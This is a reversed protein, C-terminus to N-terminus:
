YYAKHLNVRKGLLSLTIALQAAVTSKGVGGKGSLVVLVVKIKDMKLCFFNNKIGGQTM